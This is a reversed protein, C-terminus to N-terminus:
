VKKVAPVGVYIGAEVIDKSVYAQAGITTHPAIKVGPGIVAATGVHTGQGIVTGGVKEGTHRSYVTMVNPSIFVNDEVSVERAITCGFRLTVKNGIKNSGSSRVYSDVFVDNGIRTGQKLLVYNEITVNDGVVVDKEIKVFSGCKFNEGHRFDEAIDCYKGYEM